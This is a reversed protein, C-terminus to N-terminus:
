MQEKLPFALLELFRSTLSRNKWDEYLVPRSNALDDEFIRELRQATDADYLAVNLEENLSFSRHDLNTSGVTAWIGDVVMTKAHLLAPRYEYIQVGNQLLRGLKSRSAQRVLNHDIAGPILLVVEVGRQAAGLLTSIMTEDPVFYPNTIHISHRASALALLFMTYMATSGGAPSSRVVQADVLGKSDLRRRPFYEPGGIAVGTAELWNEAFAGQLQEVVPGEVLVDTDRWHGQQRGNGSWKGIRVSHFVAPASRLAMRSASGSVAPAASLAPVVSLGPLVSLVSSLISFLALSVVCSTFPATLSLQSVDFVLIASKASSRTLPLSTRTSVTVPSTNRRPFTSESSAFVVAASIAWPTSPTLFTFFSRCTTAGDARLVTWALSLCIVLATSVLKPLSGCSFFISTRVSAPTTTSLPSTGFMGTLAFAESIACQTSPTFDTM